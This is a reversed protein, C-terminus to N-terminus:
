DVKEGAENFIEGEVMKYPGMQAQSQARKKLLSPDEAMWAFIHAFLNSNNMNMGNTLDYDQGYPMRYALFVKYRDDFIDRLPVGSALMEEVDSMPGRYTTPGHDGLLIIISGPDVELIYNVVEEIQKNSIEVWEKYQGSKIWEDRMHWNYTGDPPTHEAGGRVSVFCQANGCRSIANKFWQVVEYQFDNIPIYNYNNITALFSIDQRDPYIDFKKLYNYYLFSTIPSFYRWHWKKEFAVEDLNPGKKEFFYSQPSTLFFTKYGNSKLIRMVVNYPFGAVIDRANWTVDNNGYMYVVNSNMIGLDSITALTNDKSSYVNEEIVFKREKLFDLLGRMDVDYIKNIMDADNYSELYYLYINPKRVLNLDGWKESNEKLLANTVAVPISFLNSAYVVASFILMVSAFTVIIKEKNYYVCLFVIIAFLPAIVKRQMFIHYDVLCFAACASLVAIIIAFVATQLNRSVPLRTIIAWFILGILWLAAGAGILFALSALIYKFPFFTVNQSWFYVFGPLLCLGPLLLASNKKM